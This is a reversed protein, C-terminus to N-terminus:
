PQACDPASWLHLPGDGEPLAHCRGNACLRWGGGTAGSAGLWVNRQPPLDLAYHWAGDRLVADPPPEMGAGSASIWAQVPALGFETVQWREWWTTREVSHTWDLTFETTALSLLLAGGAVCLM